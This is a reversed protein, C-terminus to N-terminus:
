KWLAQWLKQCMDPFNTIGCCAHRLHVCYVYMCVYMMLVANTIQTHTRAHAHTHTQQQWQANLRMLKVFAILIFHSFNNRNGYNIWLLWHCVCRSRSSLIEVCVFRQSESRSVTWVHTVLQRVSNNALSKIAVCIQCDIKLCTFFVHTHTHAVYERKTHYIITKITARAESGGTAWDGAECVRM